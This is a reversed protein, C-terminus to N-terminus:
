NALWEKLKPEIAQAWIEYGQPSLHLYDPMVTKSISGDAEILQSGFDLYHIMNGDAVKALAQNIQLLKGRQPSFTQSRPFIGLVLIKTEPLRARIAKIIAHIGELIEAESYQETGDRNKNSNNTGIMLVAAKPKLGDLQGNEFRWLVHETRDGGVGFNLCVRNGYYNTWAARGNGEWGQTISDGIFVIDCPGPNDKARQLVQAQRNTSNGTRSVPIIAPNARPTPAPANTVAPAAVPPPTTAAPSAPAPPPPPASSSGTKIVCGSLILIATLFGSALSASKM